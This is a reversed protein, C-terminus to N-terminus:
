RDYDYYNIPRSSSDVQGEATKFYTYRNRFRTTDLPAGRPGFSPVREHPGFDASTGQLSDTQGEIRPMTGLDPVAPSSLGDADSWNGIVPIDEQQYITTTPNNVCDHVYDTVYSPVNVITKCAPCRTRM